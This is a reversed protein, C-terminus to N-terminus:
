RHTPPRLIMGPLILDPDAGIVARNTTYWDPWEAAIDAETAGRGLHRAAIGWLTDGRKVVVEGAPRHERTPEAALGADPTPSPRPAREDTSFPETPPQAVPRGTAPLGPPEIAPPQHMAETGPSEDPAKVEGIRGVGPLGSNGVQETAVVASPQGSGGALAPTCAAVPGATLSLGLTLRALRGAVGPAIRGAVRESADGLLGPLAGLATVALVAAVWALLALAAGAAAVAVLEEFTATGARAAALPGAAGWSAVRVVLAMAVAVTVLRM